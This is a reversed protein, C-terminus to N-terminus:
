LRVLIDHCLVASAFLVNVLGDVINAYPERDVEKRVVLARKGYRSATCDLICCM